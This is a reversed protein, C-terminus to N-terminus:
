PTRRRRRPPGTHTARLMRRGDIGVQRRGELRQPACETEAVAGFGPQERQRETEAQQHHQGIRQEREPQRQDDITDVLVVPRRDDGGGDTEGDRGGEDPVERHQRLSHLAPETVADRDRELGMHRAQLGRHGSDLVVLPGLEEVPQRHQALLDERQVVHEHRQEGRQAPHEAQGDGGDQQRRDVRGQQQQQREREGGEHRGRPPGCDLAPDLFGGHRVDPQRAVQVGDSGRRRGALLHTGGARSGPQCRFSPSRPLPPVLRHRTHSQAARQPESETPRHERAGIDARDHEDDGPQITTDRCDREGNGRPHLQDRVDARGGVLEAKETPEPQIRRTPECPQLVVGGAGPVTAVRRRRLPQVVANPELADREPIRTRLLQDQVSDVQQQWGSRHDGNDALVAGALRRQHLQERAHVRRGDPADEDVTDIEGLDVGGEPALSQRARELVERTELECGLRGDTYAIERADVITSGGVGGDTPCTCLIDHVAQGLPEVGLQPRRPRAPRLDAETLPLLQRQSAAEHAVPREQQDEVFRGGREVRLRFVRQELLECSRGVRVRRVSPHRHEDRVAKGRHAHGVEDHHEVARADDLDTRVFRQHGAVTM